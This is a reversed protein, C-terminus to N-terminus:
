GTLEERWSDPSPKQRWARGAPLGLILHCKDTEDERVANWDRDNIFSTYNRRNAYIITTQEYPNNFGGFLSVIGTGDEENDVQDVEEKDIHRNAHFM